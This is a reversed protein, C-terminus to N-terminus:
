FLPLTKHKIIWRKWKCNGTFQLLSLESNTVISLDSNELNLINEGKM